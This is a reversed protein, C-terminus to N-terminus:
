KVAQAANLQPTSPPVKYHTKRGKLHKAQERYIEGMKEISVTKEALAIIMRKIEDRKSDVIRQHFLTGEKQHLDSLVFDPESLFTEAYQLM